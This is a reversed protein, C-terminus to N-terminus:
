RGKFSSKVPAVKIWQSVTRNILITGVITPISFLLVIMLILYTHYVVLFARPFTQFSTATVVGIYSVGQGLIHWYLWPKGLWAKPKRKVALYGILGMLYTPPTVWQFVTFSGPHEILGILFGSPLAITLLWFYVNGLLSHLSHKRKRIVLNIAGVTLLAISIIIHLLSVYFM